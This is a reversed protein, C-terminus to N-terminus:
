SFAKRITDMLLFMTRNKDKLPIFGFQEYFTASSEKADVIIVYIGTLDAIQLAKIFAQKLLWKGTGKKQFETSVALRGIRLSPIPYKPLKANFNEPLQEYQIQATSLTIYGAIENNPTLALFTKGIGLIDNKGAYRSLYTNLPEIGCDFKKLLSKAPIKNISVLYLGANKSM